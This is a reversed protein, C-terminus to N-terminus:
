LATVPTGATATQLNARYSCTTGALGDKGDVAKTVVHSTSIVCALWLRSGLDALQFVAKGQM